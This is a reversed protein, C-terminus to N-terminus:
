IDRQCWQSTSEISSDETHSSSSAKGFTPSFTPTHSHKKKDETIVRDIDEWVVPQSTCHAILLLVLFSFLLHLFFFNLSFYFHLIYFLYVIIVVVVLLRSAPLAVLLSVFENAPACSARLARERKKRWSEAKKNKLIYRYVWIYNYLKERERNHIGDPRHFSRWKM